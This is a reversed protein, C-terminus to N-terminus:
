SSPVKNAKRISFGMGLPHHVVLLTKLFDYDHKNDTGDVVKVLMTLILTEGSLDVIVWMVMEQRCKPPM